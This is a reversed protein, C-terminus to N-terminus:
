FLVIRRNKDEAYFTDVVNDLNLSESIEREISLVALSVLRAEHMSSRLYTKIRKLASFSRECSATSACITLAIQVLKLLTPFAQRLPFVEEFVDATTEMSTKVLTQKALRSEIRIAEADLGYCDVLGQLHDPELFTSSQPSCAQISKMIDINKDDFRRKFESLFTDLIPYYFAIKYQQSTILVEMSGTYEFVVADQLRTPLTRQRHPRPGNVDISHLNVISEVYAYLHDLEHDSRVDQLTEITALVLDSAEGLDLKANQLADSLGKTISLLREFTVLYM